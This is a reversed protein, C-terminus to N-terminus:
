PPTTSQINRESIESFRLFATMRHTCDRWNLVRDVYWCTAGNRRVGTVGQRYAAIAKRWDGGFAALNYALIRGAIIAAEDPNFPDFDGWKAVRSEHWNNHLQFMGLSYGYDGIVTRRFDSEAAAIGRLIEAPVGTIAEARDFLDPTVTKGYGGKQTAAERAANQRFIGDHANTLEWILSTKLAPVIHPLSFLSMCFFVALGSLVLRFKM